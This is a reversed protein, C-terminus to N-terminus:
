RLLVRILGTGASWAEMAKGLVTGAAVMAVEADPFVSDPGRRPCGPRPQISAEPRTRKRELL